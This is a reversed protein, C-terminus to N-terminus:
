VNVIGGDRAYRMYAKIFDAYKKQALILSDGNIIDITNVNYATIKELNVLYGRHCRYFSDGLEKEWAEMRGYTDMKGLKTHFIVKKNCSEIYYIDKLLIKKQMGNHKIMITRNKREAKGLVEKLARHFVTHFKKEDVPKVLYHFANVDFAEEMYERYGTIFIFIGKEKGMKEEEQRICKAVEMGSLEQLEIDLFSIAFEEQAHLMSEGSAFSFLEIQTEACYEKIWDMIQERVSRDDDCVAIKIM